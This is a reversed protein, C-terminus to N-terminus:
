FFKHTFEPEPLQGLGHYLAIELCKYTRFGYARKTILKAKGNLGEVVGSSFMKKARFWNLILKRHRRLMKAVDKMPEIRSRMTRDCWQDLFKGAFYPSRYGWFFQFDEKMLYARVTRLNYRLIVALKGIQRFTMNEVKKLLLWRSGKLVPSLGKAKLERVEQARVKDIAKNMHAMIHFRDLIHVAGCAKKAIVKLYPKWMDSCIFALRSSREKGFWRFFGLLTRVTRERGVWLLRKQGENIQYVVTVYRHWRGWAMEDVGIATVGDLNMHSRGWNVAMRVATFVHHWSTQFADAVESWSLRKAWSSLFWAYTKTQRHKGNAWPVVEVKVGCHPCDVRRMAYLFLVVVGWFPIFEFRRVPLIDYGPGERGCVSCVPRSGKRPRVTVELVLDTEGILEVSQYVFGKHKELRNLLTKIHM